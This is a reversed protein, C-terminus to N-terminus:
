QQDAAVAPVIAGSVALILDLRDLYVLAQALHMIVVQSDREATIHDRGRLGDTYCDYIDQITAGAHTAQDSILAIANEIAAIVDMSQAHQLAYGLHTIADLEHVATRVIMTTM